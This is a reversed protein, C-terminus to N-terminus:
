EKYERFRKL